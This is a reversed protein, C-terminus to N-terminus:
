ENLFIGLAQKIGSTICSSVCMLIVCFLRRIKLYTTIHESFFDHFKLDLLIKPFM